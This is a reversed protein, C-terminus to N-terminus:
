SSLLDNKLYSRWVSCRSWSSRVPPQGRVGQLQRRLRPTQLVPSCPLSPLLLLHPPQWGQPSLSTTTHLTSMGLGLRSRGRFCRRGHRRTLPMKKMLGWRKLRKLSRPPRILQGIMNPMQPASCPEWNPTAKLKEHAYEFMLEKVRMGQGVTDAGLRAVFQKVEETEMWEKAIKKKLSLQKERVLMAEKLFRCKERMGELSHHLGKNEWTLNM